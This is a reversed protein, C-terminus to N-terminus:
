QKKTGFYFATVTGTLTAVPATVLGVQEGTLRGAALLIVSVLLTGALLLMSGQALWQRVDSEQQSITRVPKKDDKEALNKAQVTAKKVKAVGLREVDLASLDEVPVPEGNVNM